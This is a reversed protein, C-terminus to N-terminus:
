SLKWRRARDFRVTGGASLEHTWHGNGVGERGGPTLHGTPAYFGYGVVIEHRRPRWGLVIPQVYLDGLGFDDLSARPDDTSLAVRAVPMSVAAGVSTQLRRVDYVGAVGFVNAFASASLGVPVKRGDRDILEGARYGIVADAADIGEPPLEGADLGLTGLVKHGLDKQARAAGGAVVLAVLVFNRARRANM